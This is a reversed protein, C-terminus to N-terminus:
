LVDADHLGPVPDRRRGRQAEAVRDGSPARRRRAPAPADKMAPLNDTEVLVKAANADTLFDIYAAAVDPNKASPRSRSRCRSAASRCRAGRSGQRADAHLRCRRGDAGRPRRDGVHRRDPLPGQGQRVGAVGPRLRHRQLEQQLLGQRGVGQDEDAGAVFEPNDFSAGDKAFVFDRIAQKDATQGLVSEFNHIGPWKELNGFQIPIEGEDKAEQLSAEFEDLTTPPTPVKTKNYFVGVIEGMQSLGYLDGSGFEKGDSSFKNLDLLLPSYRTRGATSRPTTPSRACCARRSWSAWSRAARTPRSWTPRRRARLRRAQADQDPGRLVERRARDQREPVEGPVGQQAARDAQKQGGRVEQDWVTLTVDGAKSIDPKAAVTAAPTAAKKARRRGERRSGRRLGRDAGDAGVRCDGETAM